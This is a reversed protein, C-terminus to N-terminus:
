GCHHNGPNVLGKLSRRVEAPPGDALVSRDLVIVRDYSDLAEGWDHSSVLLTHGADALQRMLLLLQDRSPPDIAACPEDLLLMRSPQVLSRALLARQQQGGSLSDLRRHALASLGVRQLAAERDCCGLSQGNMSGLDVLDRVSIPFSWDIRSRQPMLVVRERCEEIPDGDCYVSGCRPRLQGQLVHLLTSKGAGNAGVLATLTGSHLTMAVNELVVRDGYQVDVGEARLVPEGLISGDLQSLRDVSQIFNM